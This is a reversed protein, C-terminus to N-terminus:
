FLFAIRKQLFLLFVSFFLTQFFNNELGATELFIWAESLSFPGEYSRCMEGLMYNKVMTLEQETILEDQLRRMEHKVERICPEVYENDTETGIALYGQFPYSAIGASIGYTYGKDERINSMLRSGFYGGLITTLVKLPIFDPHTRDVLPCGLRISSQVASPHEIFVRKGKYPPTPLPKLLEHLAVNGWTSSGLEDIVQSVVMDTIHGSLHGKRRGM